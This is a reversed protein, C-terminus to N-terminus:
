LKAQGAETILYREGAAAVLGASEMERLNSRVRYLPQGTIGRVDEATRPEKLAELVKLASPTLTGDPNICAM